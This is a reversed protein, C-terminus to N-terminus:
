TNEDKKTQSHTLYVISGVIFTAGIITSTSPKESFFILGYVISSLPEFLSLISGVSAKIKRLGYNLLLYGALVVVGAGLVPLWDTLVFSFNSPKDFIFILPFLGLSGFLQTWFTITSSSYSKGLYGTIVFYSGLSIGTLLGFFNGVLNQMLNTPNLLFVLGVLGILISILIHGTIKEKLFIASLIIAFVPSTYLLFYTNTISTYLVSLTFASSLVSFGVLGNLFFFLLHSKKIALTDTKIRNTVLNLFSILLFAVFIRGFTQIMPQLNSSAFRVFIGISGLLISGLSVALIGTKISSKKM